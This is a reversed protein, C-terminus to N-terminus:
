IFTEGMGRYTSYRGVVAGGSVVHLADFRECLEGAKAHRFFVPDGLGLKAAQAGACRLPTQVEGAGELPFLELGTPLHPRPLKTEGASGSAVYGGGMCTVIDARPKRVVEVAFGAAPFYRFDRYHDFLIPSYFGSGATLETVADELSSSALSGTGGANVFRPHLGLGRIRGVLEARREAVERVSRSKLARVFRNRLAAGPTRDGVGAIQAEYGMLGDLWVWESSAIREAVPRVSEWSALPSRWVGFRLGPYDSSMDLDLCVPVRVGHERAIRELRDVHEECDAMFTIRSGEGIREALRGIGESGWTPYGLLLDDFGHGALFAAEEASYCMVGRYVDSANLIYRLVDVSRISKSAVRITKGGAAAGIARINLDLLDRDLYAFPMPVNAFAQKYLEYDPTLVM